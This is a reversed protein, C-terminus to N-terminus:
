QYRKALAEFKAVQDTTWSEDRGLEDAMLGAVRPAIELAAAADLFLARTRRALVDEVTRAMQHRVAWIVEVVRYPLREHLVENWAPQDVVWQALHEADSGYHEWQWAESTDGGAGHLRLGRTRSQRDVLGSVELASDVVDQAMRRYTTWKGGTVTVLGSPAVLIRHKRSLAATSGQGGRSVLPRLGAFVSRVSARNLPTEFYRGAHELLFSIEEESPLPDKEPEAVPTDTTGLVVRGLWPIAFLIRGDDTKPIMMAHDGPLVEADLVIHIGRSLQMVPWTGPDDLQRVEDTYIGTANIVARARLSFTEDSELDRVEVGVIRGRERVFADARVYNLAIGGQSVVTQALTIALAADDFQGDFYEVGGQLRDGSLGELAELTKRRSLFRSRGIGRTGSMWDYVKLGMGYYLQEALGYTPVVFGLPKVLHPANRLLYSREVLSERVLGVDGQKLYRFGGHILKTSRSTTSSGFDGQEILVTRFGRSAADVAAGLGTAGGGIVVVDWTENSEFVADLSESRSLLPRITQNM